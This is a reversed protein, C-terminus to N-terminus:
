GELIRLAQKVAERTYHGDRVLRAIKEANAKKEAYDTFDLKKVDEPTSVTYGVGYKNVFKAVAAQEWVIVPLGAALYCSLKHPNNYRTYNKFGAVQADSDDVNGDWILGFHGDLRNPLDDPPFAGCYHLHPNNHEQLGNGYLNLEFGCDSGLQYIFPSKELNGAYVLTPFPKDDASSPKEEPVLYDFLELDIIPKTVGNDRLFDSMVSNHSIVADCSNYFALEAQLMSQDGSRLGEIDHILAIKKDAAMNVSPHRSFPAQILLVDTKPANKLMFWSKRCIFVIKDIPNRIYHKMRFSEIKAGFERATIREIDLKAKPGANLKTQTYQAIVKM